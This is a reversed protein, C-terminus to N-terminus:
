PDPSRPRPVGEFPRGAPRRTRGGIIGQEHSCCLNDCRHLAIPRLGGVPRRALISLVRDEMNKLFMSLWLIVRIPEATYRRVYNLAQHGEQYDTVIVTGLPALQEILALLEANESAAPGELSQTSIELATLPEHDSPIGEALFSEERRRFPKPRLHAPVAAYLVSCSSRVSTFLHPRSSWRLTPISSSLMPFASRLLELCWLRSDEGAFVPGTLELVDIELREISLDDFLGALFVAPSSRQRYAPM